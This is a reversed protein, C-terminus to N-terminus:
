NLIEIRDLQWISRFYIEESRFKPDSDYPYVIWLPGKDRVTMPEDNRMYAIIPGDPAADSIPIEISYDNIAMARLATAQTELHEMFDHLSVGTFTQEGETWITTTTFTTPTLESLEDMCYETVAGNVTVTLLVDENSEEANSIAPFTAIAMLLAASFISRLSIM